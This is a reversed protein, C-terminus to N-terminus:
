ATVQLPTLQISAGPHTDFRKEATIRAALNDDQWVGATTLADFTSRVCKDLDPNATQFVAAGAKLTGANRGTGYHYKPRPFYFVIRVAVPGTFPQFGDRMEAAAIAAAVVDQRWPKVKKSSEVMLGNGVHRKSGQPAPLGYVRFELDRTM